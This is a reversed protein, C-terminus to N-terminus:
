LDQGHRECSWTWIIQLILLLLVLIKLLDVIQGLLQLQYIELQLLQRDFPKSNVTGLERPRRWTSDNLQSRYKIHPLLPMQFNITAKSAFKLDGTESQSKSATSMLKELPLEYLDYFVGGHKVDSNSKYNKTIIKDSPKAVDKLQTNWFGHFFEKMTDCRALNGKRTNPPSKSAGFTPLILQM